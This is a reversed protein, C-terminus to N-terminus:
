LHHCTGYPGSEGAVRSRKMMQEWDALHKRDEAKPKPPLFTPRTKSIVKDLMSPGVSRSPRHKNNAASKVSTDSRGSTPTPLSTSATMPLSPVSASHSSHSTAPNSGSSTASPSAQGDHPPTSPPSPSRVPTHSPPTTAEVTPVFGVYEEYTNETATPHYAPQHEPGTLYGPPEDPDAQPSQLNVSSMDSALTVEDFSQVDDESPQPSIGFEPSYPQHAPPPLASSYGADIDFTSVSADPDVGEGKAYSIKALLDSYDHNPTWAAESRSSEHSLNKELEARIASPSFEFPEDQDDADSFADDFNFRAPRSLSSPPRHSGPSDQEDDSVMAM